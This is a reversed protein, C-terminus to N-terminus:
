VGHDQVLLWNLSDVGEDVIDLHGNGQLIHINKFATKLFGFTRSQNIEIWAELAINLDDKLNDLDQTYDVDLEDILEGRVVRKIGNLNIVKVKM